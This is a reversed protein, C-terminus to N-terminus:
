RLEWDVTSVPNEHNFGSKKKWNTVSVPLGKGSSAERHNSQVRRCRRFSLRVSLVPWCHLQQNILLTWQSSLCTHSVSSPFDRQGKNIPSPIIPYLPTNRCHRQPVLDILLKCSHPHVESWQNTLWLRPTSTEAPEKRNPVAGTSLRLFSRCPYKPSTLSWRNLCFILCLRMGKQWATAQSSLPARPREWQSLRKDMLCFHHLSAM